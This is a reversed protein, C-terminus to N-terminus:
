PRWRGPTPSSGHGRREAHGSDLSSCPGFSSTSSARCPRPRRSRSRRSRPDSDVRPDVGLAVAREHPAHEAADGLGGGPQLDATPTVHGIMRMWGAIMAWGAAVAGVQQEVAPEDEADARRSGSRARGRGGSAAPRRGAPWAPPPPRPSACATSPRSADVVPAVEVLDLVGADVVRGVAGGGTITDAKPGFAASTAARMPSPSHVVPGVGVEVVRALVGTAGPGLVALDVDAPGGVLRAQRSPRRATAWCRSGRRASGPGGSARGSRAPPRAPSRPAPRPASVTRGRGRRRDELRDLLVQVRAVVM